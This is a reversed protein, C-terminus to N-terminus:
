KVKELVIEVMGFSSVKKIDDMAGTSFIFSLLPHLPGTWIPFFKFLPKGFPKIKEGFYVLKTLKLGSPEILRKFIEKESYIRQYFVKEAIKGKTSYYFKKGARYEVVFKNGCPVTVVVKGGKKVVRAMEMIANIDGNDSIHEVVSVSYVKDFFNNRFSLVTGDEVKPFYKKNLVGLVRAFSSCYDIFYDFVDTAYVMAGVKKSIFLSLIKPSGVDLVKENRKVALDNFVVVNEVCRWFAVPIIIAELIRQTVKKEKILTKFGLVVGFFYLNSSNIKKCMDSM